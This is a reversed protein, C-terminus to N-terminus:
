FPASTEGPVEVEQTESQVEREGFPGQPNHPCRQCEPEAGWPCLRFRGPALHQTADSAKHQPQDEKPQAKDDTVPALFTLCDPSDPFFPQAQPGRSPPPPASVELHLEKRRVRFTLLSSQHHSSM